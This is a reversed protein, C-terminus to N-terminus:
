WPLRQAFGCVEDAIHRQPTQVGRRPQLRTAPLCRHRFTLFMWAFATHQGKIHAVADNAQAAGVAAFPQLAGHHAHARRVLLNLDVVAGGDPVEVRCHEPRRELLDGRAELRAIAKALKGQNVVRQSLGGELGRLVRNNVHDAPSVELHEEVALARAELLVASQEVFHRGEGREDLRFPPFESAVSDPDECELRPLPHESLADHPLRLKPVDDLGSAADDHSLARRSITLDNLVREHHEVAATVEPLAGQEATIGGGLNCASRTGIAHRAESEAALDNAPEELTNEAIANLLIEERTDGGVDPLVRLSFGTVRHPRAHGVRRGKLAVHVEALELFNADKSMAAEGSNEEHLLRSRPAAKGQLAQRLSVDFTEIRDPLNAPLTIEKRHNVAGEYDVKM